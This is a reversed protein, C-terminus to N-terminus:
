MVGYPLPVFESNWFQRIMNGGGGGGEVVKGHYNCGCRQIVHGGVHSVYGWIVPHCSGVHSVYGWM